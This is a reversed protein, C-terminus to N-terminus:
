VAPQEAWQALYRLSDKVSQSKWSLTHEGGQQKPIHNRKHLIWDGKTRSRKSLVKSDSFTEAQAGNRGRKYM